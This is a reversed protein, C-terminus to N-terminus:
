GSFQLETQNPNLVSPPAHFPDNLWDWMARYVFIQQRLLAVLNSLSWAFSSKLRLYKILLMAILATYIQTLIANANIGIFTKIRTSQKLAKFFLEIQWREKYIAAIDTAPLSLHNTVFVLNDKGEVAMEIRRLLAEPGADRQKDLFIVEDALLAPQDRPITRTEAITYAASDKLRTVFRIKRKTLRLWWNYDTYGRDFVVISGPPFDMERGVSLDSEREETVVAYHPLYGDHDLVLHLKGAGKARRWHDKDLMKVWLPIISADISLLKAGYRLKAPQCHHQARFHGALAHFLDQYIRWDRHENAYALTSRKPASTIGLHRLKGEAAAMGGTIERLSKAGGLHCFLLSVFQTWCNFGRAHREGQRVDVINAFLQRPVMGVIQSFISSVRNM